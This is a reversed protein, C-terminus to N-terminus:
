KTQNDIFIEHLKARRGHLIITPMSKTHNITDEIGTSDSVSILILDAQPEGTHKSIWTYMAYVREAKAFNAKPNNINLLM